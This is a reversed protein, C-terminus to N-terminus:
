SPRGAAGARPAFPRSLSDAVAQFGYRLLEAEYSSPDPGDRPTSRDPWRPPGASSGALRTRM